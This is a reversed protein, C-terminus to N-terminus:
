PLNYFRKANQYFIKEQENDDLLETIITQYAKWTKTYSGALLSVPWDSGCFCRDTGFRDLAFEIYPKLDETSWGEFNKSATGLGSIKIFFNPHQAAESMLTGWVGFKERTAIPPQNIHDFVMRLGPVKSAVKLATEIHQPLIGVLDFSLNHGALLKLSEIVEAQLLWKDDAEIHILHRIGKFYKNLLYKSSLIDETEKPKLLPLWGVVGTIWNSNAAAELMCDTDEFNNASQVLVGETIGATLRAESLEDVKYTRNLITTDGNLWSYEAKALDWVHIHTDIIKHPM